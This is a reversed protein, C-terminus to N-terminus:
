NRPLFQQRRRWNQIMSSNHATKIYVFSLLIHTYNTVNLETLKMLTGNGWAKTPTARAASSNVCDVHQQALGPCIQQCHM